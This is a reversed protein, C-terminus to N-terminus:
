YPSKIEVNSGSREDEDRQFELETFASEYFQQWVPILRYEDDEPKLFPQAQLLSGYVYLDPATRLVDNDSDPAEFGGSLDYYYIWRIVVDGDPFPYFNLRGRERTFIEPRGTRGPARSYVDQYESLSVRRLPRNDAQLTLTELYDAPVEIYGRIPLQAPRGLSGIPDYVPNEVMNFSITKENNPMRYRRFIKREAMYIFTPIRTELDARNLWDMVAEQLDQYNNIERAV